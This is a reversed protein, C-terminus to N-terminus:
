GDSRQDLGMILLNIFIIRNIFQLHLMPVGFFFLIRLNKVENITLEKPPLLIILTGSQVRSVQSSNLVVTLWADGYM